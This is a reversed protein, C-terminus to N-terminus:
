QPVWYLTQPYDAYYDLTWKRVVDFSPMISPEFIGFQRLRLRLHDCKAFPIEFKFYTNADADRAFKAEFSEWGKKERIDEDVNKDYLFVGDQAQLFGIRTRPQVVLKLDSDKLELSTYNVAWVVIPDHKDQNREKEDDPSVFTAFLAAVYPNYTFDLLRTPVRHHQALADVISTPPGIPELKEKVATLLEDPDIKFREGGLEFRSDFPVYLHARDAVEVFRRVVLQEIRRQVYGYLRLHENTDLERNMRRQVLDRM